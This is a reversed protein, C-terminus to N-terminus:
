KKKINLKKANSIVYLKKSIYKMAGDVDVVANKGDQKTFSRITYEVSQEFMGKVIDGLDEQSMIDDREKYM